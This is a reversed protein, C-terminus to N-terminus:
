KFHIDIWRLYVAQPYTGTAKHVIINHKIYLATPYDKIKNGVIFKRTLEHYDVSEITIDANSQAVANEINNKAITCAECGTTTVILIKYM